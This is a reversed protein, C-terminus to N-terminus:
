FHTSKLIVSSHFIAATVKFLFYGPYAVSIVKATRHYGHIFFTLVLSIMFIVGFISYLFLQFNILIWNLVTLILNM